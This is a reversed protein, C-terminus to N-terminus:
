EAWQPRTSKHWPRLLSDAGNKEPIVRVRKHALQLVLKRFAIEDATVGTKLQENRFHDPEDFRRCETEIKV